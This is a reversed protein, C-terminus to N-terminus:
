LRAPNIVIMKNGGVIRANSLDLVQDETTRLEDATFFVLGLDVKEGKQPIWEKEVGGTLVIKGTFLIELMTVRGNEDTNIRVFQLEKTIECGEGSYPCGNMGDSKKNNVKIVKTTAVAVVSKKSKANSMDLRFDGAFSSSVELIGVMLILAVKKM